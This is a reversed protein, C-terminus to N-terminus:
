SWNWALQMVVIVFEIGVGVLALGIELNMTLYVLELFVSSTLQEYVGPTLYFLCVM